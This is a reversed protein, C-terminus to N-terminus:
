KMERKTQESPEMMSYDMPLRPQSAPDATGRTRMNLYPSPVIHSISMETVPDLSGPTFVKKVGEASNRYSVVKNEQLSRLAKQVDDEHTVRRAWGADATDWSSDRITGPVELGKQRLFRAHAENAIDDDYVDPDFDAHESFALAHVKRGRVLYSVKLDRAADKTGVHIAPAHMFESPDEKSAHFQPGLAV